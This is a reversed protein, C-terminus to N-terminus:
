SLPAFRKAAALQRFYARVEPWIDEPRLRTLCYPEPFRCYDFCPRYVCLDRIVVHQQEGWPRFWDPDTPGFIACVPRGCSAALHGPGSDNCLVANARSLIYVLEGLPLPPLVSDALPALTQGYGDPEPILLLHFDFEARLRQLLEAFSAEPWRRVAIRAGAHLVLLPRKAEALLSDARETRYRSGDLFPEANDMGSLGLARGLDRWDEVKHQKPRSREVPHTLFTPRRKRPFGLRERARILWMLLHDRPDTRVSVAADFRERRLRFLLDGQAGAFPNGMSQGM